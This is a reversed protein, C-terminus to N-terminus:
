PCNIKGFNAAFEDLGLGKSDFIYDVLDAGDVDKDRDSDGPCTDQCTDTDPVQLNPVCVLGNECEGDNDCDGEGEACPGCDRCYDAHGVPHPCVPPVFQCTDTGSVQPCILDGLCESDTDCDGEGEPCPGCDRCYDNHGVPLQCDPVAQCTDTGTVQPCTLDGLCESNNDCDGEGEPCPGCDRCYDNHGVPLQCDPVSGPPDLIEMLGFFWVNAMKEYGTDFPHLSDVMDGPPVDTSLNYDFGAENEMDVLLIKDGLDIRDQAMTAVNNNLTTTEVSELCPIPFNVMCNRNIIRALIVWVERDRVAEYSDIEDLIREVESVSFSMDFTPVGIDNTGIHLLIIDVPNNALRQIELYDYVIDAIQSSTFGSHGEHDKDFDNPIGGNLSGVFNVIYGAETLLMYLSRRYGIKDTSGSSGKTISNGLPMINIVAGVTPVFVIHVFSVLFIISFWWLRIMMRRIRNM